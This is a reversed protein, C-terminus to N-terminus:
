INYEIKTLDSDIFGISLNYDKVSLENLLTKMEILMLGLHKVKENKIKLIIVFEDNKERSM